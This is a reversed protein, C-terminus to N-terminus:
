LCAKAMNCRLIESMSDSGSAVRSEIDRLFSSSLMPLCHPYLHFKKSDTATICPNACRQSRAFHIRSRLHSMKHAVPTQCMSGFCFIGSRV